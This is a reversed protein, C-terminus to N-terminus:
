SITNKVFLTDKIDKRSPIISNKSPYGLVVNFVIQSREPISLLGRLDQEEEESKLAWSLITVSLGFCESSLIFNQAGLAVDIAPLYAEDPLYYGRIDATFSIFAPIFDSFGTGGKCCKLCLKAIDPNLTAYLIIPQKNCSSSAWNVTKALEELITQDILKNQFFRNSRRNKILKELDKFEIHIKDASGELPEIKNTLQLQNYIEFKKKAWLLTEDDSYKKEAININKDLEDAIVKSHGKEVDKRHLGKDLIHGFKRVLLLSLDSNLGYENRIIKSYKELENILNRYKGHILIPKSRIFEIRDKGIIKIIIRKLM